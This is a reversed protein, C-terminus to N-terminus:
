KLFRILEAYFPEPNEAWPFHGSREIWSIKANKNLQKIEFSPFVGIPDQRGCLVLIPIDLGALGAKIDYNIRALDQSLLQHTSANTTCKIIEWSDDVTLPNYFFFRFMTRSYTSLQERTVSMKRISDEVEMLLLKEDKSARCMLNDELLNYGAMDLPGSGILILRDVAKPNETAFYMGLIAGWSHGLITIRSIDLHNMLRSIDQVAVKLNMTTSDLPHIRSKGTGRQELLICRNTASLRQVIASLQEASNGPGGSLLLVPQGQGHISYHLVGSAVPISDQIQAFAMMCCFGFGMCLTIFKKM